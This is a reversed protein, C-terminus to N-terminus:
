KLKKLRSKKGKNKATKSIYDLLIRINELVDSLDIDFNNAVVCRQTKTSNVCCLEDMVINPYGFM